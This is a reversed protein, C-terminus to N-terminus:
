KSTCRFLYPFQGDKAINTKTAQAIATFYSSSIPKAIPHPTAPKSVILKPILAKLDFLNIGIPTKKKREKSVTTYMPQAIVSKPPPSVSAKKFRKFSNYVLFSSISAEKTGQKSAQKFLVKNPIYNIM